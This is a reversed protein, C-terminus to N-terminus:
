HYDANINLKMVLYSVEEGRTGIQFPGLLDWGSSFQLPSRSFSTMQSVPVADSADDHYILVM